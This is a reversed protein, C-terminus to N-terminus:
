ALVIGNAAPLRGAELAALAEREALPFDTLLTQAHERVLGRNHRTDALLVVVCEVSSDDRRKLAVRRQLAQIDRPRTQAEIAIRGAGIVIVADWARLDGPGGIPVEFRWGVTPSVRKRLRDLLSRHAADRIPPGAPYARAGLEMGVVALLRAIQAIQLGPVQGNEIRSLQSRSTRAAGAVVAQSLGHDVRAQHLEKGLDVLIARARRSGLDARKERVGM